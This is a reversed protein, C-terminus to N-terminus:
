QRVGVIRSEQLAQAERARAQALIWECGITGMAALAGPTGMVLQGIGLMVLEGSGYDQVRAPEILMARRSAPGPPLLLVLDTAAAQEEGDHYVEYSLLLAGGNELVDRVMELADEVDRATGPRGGLRPAGDRMTMTM